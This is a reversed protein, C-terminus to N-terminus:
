ESPEDVVVASCAVISCCSFTPAPDPVAMEEFMDQTVDDM